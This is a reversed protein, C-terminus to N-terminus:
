RIFMVNALIVGVVGGIAGLMILRIVKTFLMFRKLKKNAM